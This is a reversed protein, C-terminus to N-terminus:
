IFGLNPIFIKYVKCPCDTPKWKKIERKFGELSVKNRIESPIQQWINPGLYSASETAYYFSHISNVFFQSTHTLNYHPNNRHKFVETM